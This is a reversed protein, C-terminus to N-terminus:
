RIKDMTVRLILSIAGSPINDEEVVTGIARPHKLSRLLLACLHCGKTAATGNATEKLATINEFFLDSLVQTIPGGEMQVVDRIALVSDQEISLTTKRLAKQM